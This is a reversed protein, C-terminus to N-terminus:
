FSDICVPTLFVYQRDENWVDQGPGSLRIRYSLGDSLDTLVLTRRRTQRQTDRDQVVVETYNELRPFLAPGTLLVAETDAVLASNAPLTFRETVATTLNSSFYNRQFGEFHLALDIRDGGFDGRSPPPDDDDDDPPVQADDDGPPTVVDDRGPAVVDPVQVQVQATAQPRTTTGAPPSVTTGSRPVMQTQSPGILTGTTAVAGPRTGQPPSVDDVDVDPDSGIPESWILTVKPVQAGADASEVCEAIVLPEWPKKTPREPRIVPLTYIEVTSVFQPWNKEFDLFIPDQPPPRTVSQEYDVDGRGSTLRDLSEELKGDCAVSSLAIFPLMALSKHRM